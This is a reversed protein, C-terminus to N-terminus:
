SNLWLCFFSLFPNYPCYDRKNSKGRKKKLLFLCKKYLVDQDHKEKVGAERLNKGGVWVKPKM